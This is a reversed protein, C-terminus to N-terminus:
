AERFVWTTEPVGRGAREISSPYSVLYVSATDTTPNTDEPDFTFKTFSVSLKKTKAFAIMARTTAEPQSHVERWIRKTTTNKERISLSGDEYETVLTPPSTREITLSKPAYEWDAM